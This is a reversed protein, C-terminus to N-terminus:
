CTSYGCNSCKRCSGERKLSLKYCSPCLDFAGQDHPMPVVREGKDLYDKRLAMLQGIAQPLSNGVIPADSMTTKIVIRQDMNVKRLVRVLDDFLDPYKRLAVSIIMGIAEFLSNIVAGTEGARVFVERINNDEDHTLTVHTTLSATRATYTRGPRDDGIDKAPADARKSGAVSLIGELSGDRYITFGKLRMDRSMVILDEIEEPTTERPLNVTKSVGTHNHFQFSALMRIQEAPSLKLATQAETRELLDPRDEFLDVLEQPRLMFGVWDKAPDQVQRVVALSFFPEIGTDVNRLFASVSGTPAQSTTVCNYFGGKEEVQRGLDELIPATQEAVVTDGLTEALEGLHRRWFDSSEYVHGTKRALDASVTLTGLTLAAQTRKAFKVAEADGYASRGYYALILATHFGSMGVGVPKLAQTRQRIEDLPYGEDFELILNGLFCALGAVSSMKPWFSAGFRDSWSPDYPSLGSAELEEFSERALVAANITVLNCATGASALYEGCPNSFRPEDEAKLPSYKLMNDVFLLGPDGTAWMNESIARILPRNEWFKGFVNVSINMNSLHTGQVPRQGDPLTRIFQNLRANFNKVKVFDLIDQHDWDLQILLAGRRRGGQNTTGTVSDFDPLFGVPGSAIGQGADVASGKPRLKSVDIGVGGGAMYIVRMKRRIEEIEALSDGVWGLPYCSFYGPRRTYPNGLSMLLPTAPIIRRGLLAKILDDMLGDSGLPSQLGALKPALRGAIITLYDREIPEGTKPDRVSYRTSTLYEDLTRWAAKTEEVLSLPKASINDSM